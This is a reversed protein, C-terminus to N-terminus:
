LLLRCDSRVTGIICIKLLNQKSNLLYPKAPAQPLDYISLANPQNINPTAPILYVLQKNGNYNNSLTRLSLM